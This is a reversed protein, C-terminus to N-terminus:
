RASLPVASRLMTMRVSTAVAAPAVIPEPPAITISDSGSSSYASISSLAWGSSSATLM